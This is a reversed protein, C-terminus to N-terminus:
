PVQKLITPTLIMRSPTDEFLPGSVLTYIVQLKEVNRQKKKEDYHVSDVFKCAIASLEKKEFLNRLDSFWSAFNKLAMNQAGILQPSANTMLNNFASFVQLLMFKFEMEVGNFENDDGDDDEGKKAETPIKEVEKEKEKEKEEERKPLPPPATASSPVPIPPTPTPPSSAPPPLPPTSTTAGIRILTSARQRDKQARVFM